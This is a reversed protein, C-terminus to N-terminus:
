QGLLKAIVVHASHVLIVVYCAVHKLTKTAFASRTYELFQKTM